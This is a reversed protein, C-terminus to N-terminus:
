RGGDSEGVVNARSSLVHGASYWPLPGRGIIVLVVDVSYGELAARIRDSKDTAMAFCTPSSISFSGSSPLSSAGPPISPMCCQRSGELVAELRGAGLDSEVYIRPVLRAGFGTLLADRMALSSAISYRGRVPVREIRANQRFEWLDVHGSLTSASM